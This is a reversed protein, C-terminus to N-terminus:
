PAPFGAVGAHPGCVDDATPAVKGLAASKSRGPATPLTIWVDAGGAAANAAHAEGGHAEALTRVIALGLGAGDETRAADARAFREWADPLFHPPFGPGDDIVHLEAWHAARRANLQVRTNAYRLANALMNDIAQGVRDRDVLVHIDAPLDLVIQKGAAAPRRRARDAAQELLTAVSVSVADITLAHDDARSLLLLDDALRSLRDAEEIASGIASQLAAGSPRDRAVLELETRLVALPSRLEHSADAVFTREREVSSHIRGLM